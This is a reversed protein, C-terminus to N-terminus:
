LCVTELLQSLWERIQEAPVTKGQKLAPIQIQQILVAEDSKRQSVRIRHGRRERDSDPM